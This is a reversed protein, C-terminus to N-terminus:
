KRGAEETACEPRTDGRLRRTGPEICYRLYCDKTLINYNDFDGPVINELVDMPMERAFNMLCRADTAWFYPAGMGTEGAMSYSNVTVVPGEGTTADFNTTWPGGSAGGELGCNDNWLTDLTVGNGTLPSTGITGECYRFDPNFEVTYGFAATPEGLLPLDDGVTFQSELVAIDLAQSGGCEPGTHAGADDVIYFGYDYNMYYPFIEGGWAWDVVGGSVKWCGCPDESCERGPDVGDLMPNADRNPIFIVDQAFRQTTAADYICHAATLIISRGTKNDHIATGTCAVDDFENETLIAYGDADYLTKGNEDKETKPFKFYLRGTAEQIQGGNEYPGEMAPSGGGITGSKFVIDGEDSRTMTQNPDEPGYLFTYKDGLQVGDIEVWWTYPADDDPDVLGVAMVKAVDQVVAATFVDVIGDPRQLHIKVSPATADGVTAELKLVPGEPDPLIRSGDQPTLPGNAELKRGKHKLEHQFEENKRNVYKEWRQAHSEPKTESLKRAGGNLTGRAKEARGDLCNPKDAPCERPPGGNRPALHAIPANDFVPVFEYSEGDENIIFPLAVNKGQTPQASVQATSAAAVFLVAQALFKM